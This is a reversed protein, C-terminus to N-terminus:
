LQTPVSYKGTYAEWAINLILNYGKRGLPLCKMENMELPHYIGNAELLNVKLGLSNIGRYRLILSRKFEGCAEM